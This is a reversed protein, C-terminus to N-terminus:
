NGGLLTTQVPELVAPRESSIVRSVIRSCAIRLRRRYRCSEMELSGCSNSATLSTWWPPWGMYWAVWRPNLRLPKDGAEPTKPDTPSSAVAALMPSRRNMESPCVGRQVDSAKPTPGKQASGLLTPNGRKYTASQRDSDSATPTPGRRVMTQLGMQVKRGDPTQGTPSTGEPVTRGSTGDSSSPTPGKAAAWGLKNPTARGDGSCRLSTDNGAQCATPTPGQRM